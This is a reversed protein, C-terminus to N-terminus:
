TIFLSIIKSTSSCSVQVDSQWLSEFYGNSIKLFQLNKLPIWSPVSPQTSSNLDDDLRDDLYEPYELQLWLLFATEARDHPEGLFFTIKASLFKDFFSHFCRGKTQTLINKFGKSEQM